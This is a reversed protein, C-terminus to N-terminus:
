PAPTWAYGLLFAVAIHLTLIVAMVIALPLHVAHWYRFIRGFPVLVARNIALRRYRQALHELVSVDTGPIGALAGM